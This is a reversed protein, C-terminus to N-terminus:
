FRGPKLTVPTRTVPTWGHDRIVDNSERAKRGDRLSWTIHFTSGDPRDTTGDIEVVLAQVGNGDDAEGVIKCAVNPPLPEDEAVGAQLTVHHAITRPYIPRFRDLLAPREGEEVLWGIVSM